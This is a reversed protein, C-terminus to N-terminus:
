DISWTHGCLQCSFKDTYSAGCNVEESSFSLFESRGCKPCVIKEAQRETPSPMMPRWHTIEAWTIDHAFVGGVVQGTSSHIRTGLMDESLYVLHEKDTPRPQEEISIWGNM